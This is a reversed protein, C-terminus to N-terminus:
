GALGRRSRFEAIEDKLRQITLEMSQMKEALDEPERREVGFRSVGALIVLNAVIVIAFLLPAELFEFVVGGILPGISSIFYVISWLVALVKSTDTRPMNKQILTILVLGWLIDNTYKLLLALFP